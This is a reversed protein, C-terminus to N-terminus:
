PITDVLVRDIQWTGALDNQASRIRIREVSAWSPAGYVEFDDLLLVIRKWGSFNDTFTTNFYDKWPNSPLSVYIRAGTNAGYWYFSLVDKGSWDQPEDYSHWLAFRTYEGKGVTFLFSNRGAAKEDSVDKIVPAGVNGKGDGGTKWFGAQDDDAIVIPNTENYGKARSPGTRMELDEIRIKPYIIEMAALPTRPFTDQKFEPLPNEIFAKTIKIYGDKLDGRGSRPGGKRMSEKLTNIYFEFRPRYYYRVLEYLDRRCYDILWPYKDWGAGAAHGTYTLYSKLWYLREQGIGPRSLQRDIETKLFFEKDSALLQELNTLLDILIRVEKEFEGTNRRSIAKRMRDLHYNFLEGIYQKGTELLDRQYRPNGAQRGKEKLMLDLANRLSIIYPFREKLIGGQEWIGLPLQYLPSVDRQANSYVSKELESLFATMNALSGEGYRRLAYDRLFADVDVDRPDWALRACFDYFLFNHKIFEPTVYFCTCNGAKPDTTIDKVRRDLDRLNGHLYSDGKFAHLVGFAWEKGYFYNLRKYEPAAEAEIDAVYIRDDPIVDLVAKVQEPPWPPARFTWGSLYWVGQPDSQRIGEVVAKALAIKLEMEEEPTEAVKIEGWITTEYFHTPGYVERYNKIFTTFVKVYLPDRPDLQFWPDAKGWTVEMTRAKPYVELIERPVYGQFAPGVRRLGVKRAYSSIEKMLKSEYVAWENSKESASPSPDGLNGKLGLEKWTKQWVVARGRHMLFLNYKKKMMWDIYSKWDEISWYLMYNANISSGSINKRNAFYPRESIDLRGAELTGSKPIYEGDEFFGIHFVEELLHYVAYLTGRDVSGGLVLYKLGKDEVTRIIFGDLGPNDPSLNILSRRALDKVVPNTETRGIVILNNNKGKALKESWIKVPLRTGSIKEVYAQLEEAAHKEIETAKSGTVIIAKPRGKEVLSFGEARVASCTLGLWCMVSLLMAFLRKQLKMFGEEPETEGQYTM